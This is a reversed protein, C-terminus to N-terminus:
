IARKAPRICYRPFRSVLTSTLREVILTPTMLLASVSTVNTAQYERAPVSLEADAKDDVVAQGPRQTSAGEVPGKTMKVITASISPSMCLQVVFDLALRDDPGGFFPCLIHQSGSTGARDGTDVFIAVDRTIQALVSRIFQSQIISVSKDAKSSTSFLHDLPNYEAKTGRLTGPEVNDSSVTPSLWPVFVFQSSHKKAHDAVSNALDDYPVVALSTSVTIDRQEGFMKFVSLLPDTSILTDAVSSKMVASTRDSLEILRLADMQLEHKKTPSVDTSATRPVILQTLAMIGPLHEFGDLVVTFRQRSQYDDSVVLSAQDDGTGKHNSSITIDTIHADSPRTRREPPYLANVIPTTMFTLLLAEFVFMSFVKQNLIGAQLGANLVILEM